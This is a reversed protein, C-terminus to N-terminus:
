DPGSVAYMLHHEDVLRGSLDSGWTGLMLDRAKDFLFIGARAVGIRVRALEVARRIIADPEELARLEDFTALLGAISGPASRDLVKPAPKNAGLIISWDVRRRHQM